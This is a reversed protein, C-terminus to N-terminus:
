EVFPGYYAISDDLGNLVEVYRENSNRRKLIAMKLGDNMVNSKSVCVYDLRLEARNKLTMESALHVPIVKSRIFEQESQACSSAETANVIGPLSSTALLCLVKLDM